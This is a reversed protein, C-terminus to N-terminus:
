YDDTIRFIKGSHQEMDEMTKIEGFSIHKQFCSTTGRRINVDIDKNPTYSIGNYYENRYLYGKSKDVEEDNEVKEDNPYTNHATYESIISIVNVTQNAIMKSYHGFTNSTIFEFKISKLQDDYKGEIYEKFKYNITINGEKAYIPGNNDYGIILKYKGKALEDLDSGEEYRYTEKYEIGIKEVEDWVLKDWMYLKNKDEDKKVTPDDESKLHAGQRYTFTITHEDTDCTIDTIVDGYALLNDEKKSAAVNKDNLINGFEDNLTTINVVSDKRYYLLWDYGVPPKEGINDDNLYTVFRRLDVLKSDTQAGKIKVEDVENVKNDANYQKIIDKVKDYYQSQAEFTSLDDDEVYKKSNRIYIDGDYFERDGKEYKKYPMWREVFSDMVGMDDYSSYLDVDFELSMQKDAAAAYGYYEDAVEKAETICEKLFEKFKDGGIEQYKECLCCLEKDEGIVEKHNIYYECRKYMKVMENYLRAANSLYIFEPVHSVKYYEKKKSEDKLSEYKDTTISSEDCRNVYLGYKRISEPVEKKGIGREVFGIFNDTVREYLRQKRKDLRNYQAVTLRIQPEGIKSYWTLEDRYQYYYSIITRYTYTQGDELIYKGDIILGKGEPICINEVLKAYCGNGNEYAYHLNINGLEDSDLYAFLGPIRSIMKEFSVKYEITRM